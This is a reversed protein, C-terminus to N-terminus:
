YQKNSSILKAKEIRTFKKIQCERQMAEQRTKFVEHYVFSVPLRARTYKSGKGAEHTSLRKELDVTWGTYYSDDSCKLIYTYFFM